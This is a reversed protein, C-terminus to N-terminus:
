MVEPKAFSYIDYTPTVGFLGEWKRWQGILHYPIPPGHRFSGGGGYIDKKSFTPKFYAKTETMTPGLYKSVTILPIDSM